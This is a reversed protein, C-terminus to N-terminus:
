GNVPTEPKKVLTKETFNVQGQLWITGRFRRGPEPEGYLDAAAIVLNIHMANCDLDMLYLKEDTYSNQIEKVTEITAVIKYQDGEFGFPLMSTEVISFLDENEMRLIISSYTGMDVMTLKQMADTDGSKSKEVLRSRDLFFKDREAKQDTSPQTLPLLVMGAISMASLSLSNAVANGNMLRREREYDGANLMHFILAAGIRGDNCFGLYGEGNLRAEVSLAGRSSIGDPKLYPFYFQRHFGQGDLQGIVRIGIGDGFSRSLELYATNSEELYVSEKHDYYRFIDDLLADLDRETLMLDPFGIARLYNHM